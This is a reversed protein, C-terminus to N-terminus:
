RKAAREVARELLADLAVPDKFRAVVPWAFVLKRMEPPLRVLDKETTILLSNHRRSADRLANLDATTYPHHDPFSRTAKIEAGWRLLSEFFKEPRAIGAFAYVPSNPGTGKPLIEAELVPANDPLHRRWPGPRDPAPGHSVLIVADARAMASRASERLPGAPFVHGNGFGWAADILVLSMDKFITPNQFGDDLVVFEAGAKTAARVGAAKSKAVWTPAVRTLLLAEDGVDRFDHEEPDVLLPGTKRGGYGRTVAHAEVGKARLRTLIEIAVPTKGAGGLTVNGVCIVPASARYAQATANRIASGSQYLWSVPTLLARRMPASGPGDAHNWFDPADSM